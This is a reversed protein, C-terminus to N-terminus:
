LVFSDNWLGVNISYSTLFLIYNKNTIANKLFLLIFFHLSPIRNPSISETNSQTVCVSSLTFFIEKYSSSNSHLVNLLCFIFYITMKIEPVLNLNLTKAVSLMMAPPSYIKNNFLLFSIKMIQTCTYM